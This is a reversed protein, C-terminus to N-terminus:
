KSTGHEDVMVRCNAVAGVKSFVRTLDKDKVTEKLNGVWVPYTRVGHPESAMASILPTVGHRLTVSLTSLLLWTSAQM